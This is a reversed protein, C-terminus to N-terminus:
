CLFVASWQPTFYSNGVRCMFALLVDQEKERGEMHTEFKNSLPLSLLNDAM